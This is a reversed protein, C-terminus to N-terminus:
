PENDKRCTHLDVSLTHRGVSECDSLEIHMKSQTTNEFLRLKFGYKVYAHHTEKLIVIFHDLAGGAKIM